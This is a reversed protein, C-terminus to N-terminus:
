LLLKDVLENIMAPNGNGKTAKMAQGVFFAKAKQNGGRYDAAAAPNAAIIEKLVAELEGTDSVQELGLKKLLDLPDASADKTWLYDVITRAAQQNLTNESHMKLTKAFTEPNLPLRIDESKDEKIRRLVETMIWNSIIKPNQFHKLCEDFFDAIEKETTLIEADYAPLGHVQVYQKAREEPLVPMSDQIKKVSERDITVPVLNPDPFYRYDRANEKSRMPYSKGATDDWRRTEQTLTGGGDLVEAQRKSEYLIARHVAKFSAINKMETRTGLPEGPLNLSINVDCRLSGEQMKCDSVGIYKLIQKLKELFEVAEDASSLEPQTVIEILPMGARNLDVLTAGAIHVLKGADEELHIRALKVFKEQGDATPITLGGNLCVPHNLQSIQYASALDPYFYHKRDFQAYESIDCGLALGARITFEVARTNLVPLAGPFGACGACCNINPSASFVAPCGCFVKTNTKLENHIELGIVTNYRM